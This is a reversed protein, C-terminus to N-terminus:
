YSNLKDTLEVANPLLYYNVDDNELRIVRYGIENFFKDRERDLYRKKKHSSDDIEVIVKRNTETRHVLEFDVRYHRDITYYFIKQADIDWEEYMASYLFFTVFNNESPTLHKKVLKTEVEFYKDVRKEKFEVM